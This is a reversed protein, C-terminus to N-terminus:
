IVSGTAFPSTDHRRQSLGSHIPDLLTTDGVPQAHRALAPHDRLHQRFGVVMGV